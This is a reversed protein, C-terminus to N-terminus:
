RASPLPTLLFGHWGDKGLADGVIQGRDNVAAATLLRDLGTRSLDTLRSLDSWRGDRYRYARSDVDIRLFGSGTVSSAEGVILGETNIGNAESHEFGDPVGLDHLRGDRYLFAHRFGSRKVGSSGTIWGRDSIATARSFKGGLTGLDVWKGEALLFAHEGDAAAATGVVVGARNMAKPVVYGNAGGGMSGLPTLKGDVLLWGSQRDDQGAIWGQANIAFARTIRGNQSLLDIMKGATAIFGHEWPGQRDPEATTAFGVVQGVDNMSAVVTKKGGLTGLSHWAGESWLMAECTTGDAERNGAIDGRHDITVPRMRLGLDTVTYEVAASAGRLAVVPLAVLATTVALGEVTRRLLNIMNESRETVCDGMEGRGRRKNM